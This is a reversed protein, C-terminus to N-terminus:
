NTAPILLKPARGYAAPLTAIWAGDWPEFPESGGTTLQQYFAGDYHWITDSVLGKESAESLTCGIFCDSAVGATVVRVKDINRSDRFPYGIMQWQVDIPNTALPIEFCGDTISTCAPHGTLNVGTSENPMDITIPNGTVQILWYGIGPLMEDSLSLKQYTNTSTQYSYIVWDIGYSALIDDGIIDAVTNGTPPATNLGIQIWKNDPIPISPINSVLIVSNLEGRVFAQQDGVDLFGVRLSGGEQPDFGPNTLLYSNPSLDSAGPVSTWYDWSLSMWDAVFDGEPLGLIPDFFAMHFFLSGNPFDAAVEFDEHIDGTTASATFAGSSFSMEFIANPYLFVGGVEEGAVESSDSEFSYTGTFSDGVTFGEELLTEVDTLEGEFQFTVIDAQVAPVSVFFITLLLLQTFFCTSMTGILYFKM